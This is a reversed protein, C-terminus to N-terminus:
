FWVYITLSCLSYAIRSYSHLINMISWWWLSYENLGLLASLNCSNCHQILANKGNDTDSKIMQKLSLDGYKQIQFMSWM